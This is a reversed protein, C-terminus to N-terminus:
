SEIYKEIKKYDFNQKDKYRRDRIKNGANHIACDLVTLCSRNSETKINLMRNMVQEIGYNDKATNFSEKCKCFYTEFDWQVVQKMFKLAPQRCNDMAVFNLNNEGFIGDSCNELTYMAVPISIKYNKAADLITTGMGVVFKSELIKKELQEYKMWGYLEVRKQVNCPLGTIKDKIQQIDDGASIIVLKYEPNKKCLTAFDDLLGLLYGKFPIEARSATLIINQSYGKAIIDKCNEIEHVFVPIRLIPAKSLKVGFYKETRERDIETDFVIAGNQYMKMLTKVYIKKVIERFLVNKIGSGKEFTAPHICYVINKIDFLNKKKIVEINLYQNWAFNIVMLDPDVVVFEKVVKEVMQIDWAKACRICVGMGELDNVIEDNGADHCIIGIKICNDTLYQCMRLILTQGGGYAGLTDNIVVM